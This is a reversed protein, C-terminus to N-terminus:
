QKGEFKLGDRGGGTGSYPQGPNWDSAPPPTFEALPFKVECRYKHSLFAAECIELAAQSSEPLSYDCRGEEIQRALRELHWQHGSIKAPEPTILEGEPHAANLISYAGEWGWFEVMGRTGVLRFVTNKGPANVQVFDGTELIFRTGNRNEVQTVGKTEVQMGDRYTRTSTDYAALVSVIPAEGTAALCFDLWHIGANLLDWKDCQVAILKLAGIEGRAVQQVIEVAHSRARLGHPVVVPLHRAKLADLIKRGSAATDGLPKEVLMGKLAASKLADLTIPEHSPAYTSVCVVDTPSQRFMEEHTAYTRLGPFLNALEARAEARLDAAAVLEFCSSQQLAQLSLRGGGGGGVVSATHISSM